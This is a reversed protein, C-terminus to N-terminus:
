AFWSGFGEIPLDPEVWSEHKQYDVPPKVGLSKEVAVVTDWGLYFPILSRVYYAKVKRGSVPHTTDKMGQTGTHSGRPAPEYLVGSKNMRLQPRPKWTDPFVGWLDTPKLPPLNTAGHHVDGLYGHLTASPDHYSAHHITERRLTSLEAQYRMMGRPNEMWWYLDPNLAKLGDILALTHNMLARGHHARPHKPTPALNAPTQRRTAIYKQAAAKKEKDWDGWNLSCRMISFAECPPSAYVVDPVVGGCAEIIDDVTFSLIDGLLDPTFLDEIELTVVKHGRRRAATSWGGDVLGTGGYASFLDVVVLPREIM